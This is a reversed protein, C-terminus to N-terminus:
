LEVGISYFFDVLPINIKSWTITSILNNRYIVSIGTEGPQLKLNKDYYFYSNKFLFKKNTHILRLNTVIILDYNIYKQAYLIFIIYENQSLFNFYFLKAKDAFNLHNLICQLYIILNTFNYFLFKDKFIKSIVELSLDKTAEYFDFIGCVNVQNAERKDKVELQIFNTSCFFCKHKNKVFVFIWYQFIKDYKHLIWYKISIYKNNVIFILDYNFYFSELSCVQKFYFPNVKIFNISNTISDISDFRIKKFTLNVVFFLYYIFYINKNTIKICSSAFIHPIFLVAMCFIIHYKTFLDKFASDILGNFTFGNNILTNFLILSFLSLLIILNGTKSAVRSFLPIGTSFKACLYEGKKNVKSFRALLDLKNRKVFEKYIYIREIDNLLLKNWLDLLINDNCNSYDNSNNKSENAM